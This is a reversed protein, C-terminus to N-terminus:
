LLTRLLDGEGEGFPESADSSENKVVPAKGPVQWICLTPTLRQPLFLNCFGSCKIFTSNM